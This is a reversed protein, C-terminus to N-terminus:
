HAHIAELAEHMRRLLADCEYAMCAHIRAEDAGCAALQAPLRAAWGELTTRITAACDDVVAHVEDAPLLKRQKRALEMERMEADALAKRTMAAQYGSTQAPPSAREPAGTTAQIRELSAAFDVLGEATFVLRGEQKLKTVYSRSWGNAEAFQAQRAVQLLPTEVASM